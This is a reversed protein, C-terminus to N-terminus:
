GKALMVAIGLAVAAACVLAALAALATYLMAAVTRGARREGSARTAGAIALSFAATVLTGALASVWVVQLLDKGDVLAAIM